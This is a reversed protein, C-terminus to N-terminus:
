MREDRTQFSRQNTSVHEDRSKRVISHGISQFHWSLNHGLEISYRQESNPQDFWDHESRLFFSEFKSEIKTSLIVKSRFIQGVTQKIVSDTAFLKAPLDKHMNDKVQEYPEFISQMASFVFWLEFRLNETRLLSGTQLYVQLKEVLISELRDYNVDTLTTTQENGTVIEVPAAHPSPRSPRTVM